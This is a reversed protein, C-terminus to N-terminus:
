IIKNEEKLEKDGNVQNILLVCGRKVWLNDLPLWGMILITM